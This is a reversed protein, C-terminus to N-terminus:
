GEISRLSSYDWGSVRWSSCSDGRQHEPTNMQNNETAELCRQENPIIHDAYIRRHLVPVELGITSATLAICRMAYLSHRNVKLSSRLSASGYMVSSHLGTEVISEQRLSREAAATLEDNWSGLCLEALLVERGSSRWRRVAQGGVYFKTDCCRSKTGDKFM